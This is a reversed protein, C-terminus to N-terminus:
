VFNNRGVPIYLLTRAQYDFPSDWQATDAHELGLQACYHDFRKSVTLTASTFIWAKDGDLHQQFSAAIDLATLHLAFGRATTEFWCLYEPPTTETLTLLRDLLEGARRSCNGLGPGRVAALELTAVLASLKQRLGVVAANVQGTEALAAWPGRRPEVGRLLKTYCVNYSTIRSTTTCFMPPVSTGCHVLEFM